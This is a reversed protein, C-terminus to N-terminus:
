GHIHAQMYIYVLCTRAEMNTAPSFAAAGGLEKSAERLLLTYERLCEQLAALPAQQLGLVTTTALSTHRKICHNISPKDHAIHPNVFSKYKSMEYLHLGTQLCRTLCRLVVLSCFLLSFWCWVRFLHVRVDAPGISDLVAAAAAQVHPLNAVDLSSPQAPAVAMAHTAPPWTGLTAPAQVLAAVASAVHTQVEEVAPQLAVTTGTLVVDVTM